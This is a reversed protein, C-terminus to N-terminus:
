HLGALPQGSSCGVRCVERALPGEGTERRRVAWFLRTRGRRPRTVRGQRGVGRGPPPRGGAGDFLRGRRGSQGAGRRRLLTLESFRCSRTALEARGRCPETRTGFAQARRYLLGPKRYARAARRQVHGGACRPRTGRAASSRGQVAGLPIRNSGPAASCRLEVAHLRAMVVSPGDQRPMGRGATPPSFGYPNLLGGRGDRHKLHIGTARSRSAWARRSTTGRLARSAGRGRRTSCRHNHTRRGLGSRCSLQRLFGRTQRPERLGGSGDRRKRRAGAGMAEVSRRAADPSRKRPPRALALEYAWGADRGASPPPNKEHARGRNAFLSDEAPARARVARYGALFGDPSMWGAAASSGSLVALPHAGRRYFPKRATEASSLSSLADGLKANAATVEGRAWPRAGNPRGPFVGRVEPTSTLLEALIRPSLVGPRTDARFRRGRPWLRAAPAALRPRARFRDGGAGGAAEGRRSTSGTVGRGRPPARQPRFVQGRGDGFSVDGITGELEAIPAPRDDDTTQGGSPDRGGRQVAV